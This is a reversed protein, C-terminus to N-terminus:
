VRHYNGTMQWVGTIRMATNMASLTTGLIAIAVTVAMTIMLGFGIGPIIADGLLKVLDGLPASSAGAAAMGM